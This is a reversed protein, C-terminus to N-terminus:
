RTKNASQDNVYGWGFDRCVSHIDVTTSIHTFKNYDKMERSLIKREVYIVRKFGSAARVREFLHRRVWIIGNMERM